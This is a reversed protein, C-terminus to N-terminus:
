NQAGRLRRSLATVRTANIELQERSLAGKKLGALIDTYDVKEGPMCLDGGAAAVKSARPPAYKQKKSVIDRAAIWDTMVVGDFGFECRLIDECLGRHESTHVGNLLNYSTMLALPHSEKICIEFGRLYIERMARESVLSNNNNRNYEQNNAAFHKVTVGCGPHKQVGRTLAAAFEGSLLPDESFYEFNRGCRIDRHINLAPALWLHVGFREMEEGVIDGCAEALATNWSQAIATAVPLATAYQEHVPTSRGPKPTLLRAAKRQWLPLFEEMSEISGSDLAHAGGNKDTMYHRSLRLGAPGDAMALPALGWDKLRSTTEGAAGAVLRAANGVMDAAGTRASFAGVNIYALQRDSLAHVAPDIRHLPTYDVTETRIAAADVPLVALGGPLEQARRKEPKWDAFDPVGCCNKVIRTVVAANLRAVACPAADASSTGLRLVYDGSDLFWRKHVTDYSAADSLRFSLTVDASEGPALEETKAFAALTQYPVDITRGPASVYLQVTERGARAGTNKVRATLAIAEGSVAAGAFATEFSTYGLGFGFPFMAVRGISDYYRYGVYVGERYHTDDKEGFDGMDAYSGWASWTTTLKGSPYARGLLLDALVHGTEIGLQSLLLINEVEDLPSLDVPGGVNLVLMFRKCRKQLWLIDRKESESLLIDGPVAARDAGEGCIRSLVYVATDGTGGLPLDYDPEPMVAGMGELIPPVHKRKARAWIDRVFAEHAADRVADYADLWAGTTLTFGADALGQEVTVFDRTNVEGSGSGGMRTHRAGSGYLALEGATELPFDGNARLLVACEPALARLTKLHEIEYANREM